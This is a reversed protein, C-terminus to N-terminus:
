RGVTRAKSGTAGQGQALVAERIDLSVEAPTLSSLGEFLLLLIWVVTHSQQAM